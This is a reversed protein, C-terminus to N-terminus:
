ILNIVDRPEFRRIDTNDFDTDFSVIGDLNYKKVLYYQLADDFDLSTNKIIKVILLDDTPTTSIVRLGKFKKIAILFTTLEDFLKLKTLLLEISYLSFRSFYATIIGDRVYQLFKKAEKKRKQALLVELFINTDILYM